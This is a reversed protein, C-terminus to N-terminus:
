PRAEAAPAARRALLEAAAQIVMDPTIHGMCQHYAPGAPQFCMRRQCPACPVHVRIIREKEYDIRAWRPDTSGFLTVVGIGLAAAVHRAGTDNTILVDSRAMLGKLLGITNARGAFSIAPPHVMAEEVARAVAQEAPAANIIIQAGLREALADAVAAFRQPDWMKSPGFAAGPNLMVVPRDTRVGAASFEAEAAARDAESVALEMRRSPGGGEGGVGLLAALSLYYDVASVPALRGAEDRPPALRETLLWGRV